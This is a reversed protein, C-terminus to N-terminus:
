IPYISNKGCLKQNIKQDLKSLQQLLRQNILIQESVPVEEPTEAKAGSLLRDFQLVDTHDLEMRRLMIHNAIEQLELIPKQRMSLLMRLSTQDQRNLSETLEHTLSITENLKHYFKKELELLDNLNQVTM